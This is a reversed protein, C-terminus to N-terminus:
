QADFDRWVRWARLTRTASYRRCLSVCKSACQPLKAQHQEKKIKIKQKQKELKIRIGIKM